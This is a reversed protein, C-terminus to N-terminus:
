STSRSRRWRRLRPLDTSTGLPQEMVQRWDFLTNGDGDTFREDLCAWGAGGVNGGYKPHRVRGYLRPAAPGQLFFAPQGYRAHDWGPSRTAPWRRTSVSRARRRAHAAPAVGPDRDALVRRHAPWASAPLRGAPPGGRPGPGQRHLQRPRAPRRVPPSRSAGGPRPGARGGTSHAGIVGRGRRHRLAARLPHAPGLLARQGDDLVLPETCLQTFFRSWVAGDGAGANLGRLGTVQQPNVPDPGEAGDAVFRYRHAVGKPLVVTAAHYPTDGIRRLTLPADTFTGVVSVTAPLPIGGIAAHVFTVSNLGYTEVFHEGDAWTDVLPFRWAEAIHARLTGDDEPREAHRAGGFDRALFKACNSLVYDDGRDVIEM